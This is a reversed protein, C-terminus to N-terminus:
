ICICNSATQDPFWFSVRFELCNDGFYNVSDVQLIAFQLISDGNKLQLIAKEKLQAAGGLMTGAGERFINSIQDMPRDLSHRAEALPAVKDPM